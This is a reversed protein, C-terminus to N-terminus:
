YQQQARQQPRESSIVSALEDPLAQHMAAVYGSLTGVKRLVSTSREDNTPVIAGQAWEEAFSILDVGLQRYLRTFTGDFYLPYRNLPANFNAVKYSLEVQPPRQNVLAMNVPVWSPTEALAASVEHLATLRRELLREVV